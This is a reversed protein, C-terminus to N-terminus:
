TVVLMFTEDMGPATVMDGADALIQGEPGGVNSEAAAVAVAVAVNEEPGILTLTLVTVGTGFVILTLPIGAPATTVPTEIFNFAVTPKSPSASNLRSAGLSLMILINLVPLLLLTTLKTFVVKVEASVGPPPEIM